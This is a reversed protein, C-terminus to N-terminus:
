RERGRENEWRKREAREVARDLDAQSREKSEKRGMVSVVWEELEEEVDQETRGTGDVGLGGRVMRRLDDLTEIEFGYMLGGVSMM